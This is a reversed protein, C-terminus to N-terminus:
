RFRSKALVNRLPQSVETVTVDNYFFSMVQTTAGDGAGLDVMTGGSGEEKGTLNAFQKKSFVFMSGRGLWRHVLM